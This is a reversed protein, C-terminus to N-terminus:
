VRHMVSGAAEVEIAVRRERQENYESSTRVPSGGRSGIWAIRDPDYDSFESVHFPVEKLSLLQSRTYWLYEPLRWLDLRAEPTIAPYYARTLEGDPSVKECEVWHGRRYREKLKDAADAYSEFLEGELDEGYNPDVLRGIVKLRAM